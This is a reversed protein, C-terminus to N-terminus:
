MTPGLEQGIVQGLEKVKMITEDAEDRSSGSPRYDSEIRQGYVQKLQGVLEPRNHRRLAEDAANWTPEHRWHGQLTDTPEGRAIRVAVTLNFGYYYARSVANNFRGAAFEGDAGELAEQAREQHYTHHFAM